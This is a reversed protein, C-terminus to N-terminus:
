GEGVTLDDSEHEGATTEYYEATRHEHATRAELMQELLREYRLCEEGKLGHTEAHVQGEATIRLTIKREAM